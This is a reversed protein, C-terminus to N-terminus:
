VFVRCVKCLGLWSGSDQATAGDAELLPWLPCCWQYLNYVSMNESAHIGGQPCMWSQDDKLMRIYPILIHTIIQLTISISLISLVNDSAHIGGQPRMWSRDDKLM